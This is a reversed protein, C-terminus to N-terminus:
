KRIAFTKRFFGIPGNASLPRAVIFSGSGDGGGM